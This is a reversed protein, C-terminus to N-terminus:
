RIPVTTRATIHYQTPLGFKGLIPFFIEGFPTTLTYNLTVTLPNRAEVAAPLEPPNIGTDTWSLGGALVEGQIDSVYQDYHYDGVEMNPHGAARIAGQASANLLSIYSTFVFLMEFMVLLILLLFLLGVATELLGQGEERPQSHQARLGYGARGTPPSKPESVPKGHMSLM